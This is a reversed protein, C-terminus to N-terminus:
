GEQPGGRAGSQLEKQVDPAKVKKCRGMVVASDTGRSPDSGIIFGQDMVWEQETPSLAMMRDSASQDLKNAEIFKRVRDPTGQANATMGGASGMASGMGMSAM